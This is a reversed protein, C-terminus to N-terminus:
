KAMQIRDFCVALIADDCIYLKLIYSVFLWFFCCCCYVFLCFDHLYLRLLLLFDIYGILLQMRIFTTYVLMSHKPNYELQMKIRTVRKEYVCLFCLKLSAFRGLSNPSLWFLFSIFFFFWCVSFSKLEYNEDDHGTWSISKVNGNLMVAWLDYMADKCKFGNKESQKAQKM